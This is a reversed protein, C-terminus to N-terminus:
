IKNLFYMGLPVIFGIWLVLLLPLILSLIVVYQNKSLHDYIFSYPRRGHRQDGVNDELGDVHRLFHGARVAVTRQLRVFPQPHQQARDQNGAMVYNAEIQPNPGALVAVPPDFGGVEPMNAELPNNANANPVLIDAAIERQMPHAGGHKTTAKKAPPPSALISLIEKEDTYGADSLVKRGAEKRKTRDIEEMAETSTWLKCKGCKCKGKCACFHSYGPIKVGCLYCSLMKCKCRIKNCGDSKMYEQNCHPCFRKCAQSMAEHARHKPDQFRQKERRVEDCTRDKHVKDDCMTCYSENCQSCAIWRYERELFGIYACGPCKWCKMGATELEERFVRDNVRTSLKPSLAQDLLAMSYKCNCNPDVICNFKTSGNGDLQESVYHYICQRCVYHSSGKNCERLESMPYEGYCCLCETQAEKMGNNAAGDDDKEDRLAVHTEEKSKLEPIADIEVKLQHNNLPFGEKTREAKIFVKIRKPINPFLGAGDGDIGTRQSEIQSLFTFAMSFNNGSSRLAVDIAACSIRPFTNKLTKKAQNLYSVLNAESGNRGASAPIANNTLTSPARSMTSKKATPLPTKVAVFMTLVHGTVNMYTFSDCSLM